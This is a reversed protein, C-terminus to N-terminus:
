KSGVKRYIIVMAVLALLGLGVVIGVKILYDTILEEIM